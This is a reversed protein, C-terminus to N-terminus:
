RTLLLRVTVHGGRLSAPSHCGCGRASVNMWSLQTITPNLTNEFCEVNPDTQEDYDFPNPPVTLYSLAHLMLCSLSLPATHAVTSLSTPM